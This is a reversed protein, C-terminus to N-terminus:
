DRRWSAVMPPVRLEITRALSSLAESRCSSMGAPQPTTARCQPLKGSRSSLSSPWTTVSSRRWRRRSDRRDHRSLYPGPMILELFAQRRMARTAVRMRLATMMLAPTMRAGEPGRVFTCLLSLSKVRHRANLAIHQVILGGMSHGVLHFSDIGAHDILALGDAALAEISLKSRDDLTSQGFGRNDFAIVTHHHSLGDIQRRWGEGVVAVGQVLLV